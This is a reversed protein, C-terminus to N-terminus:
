EDIEVAIQRETMRKSALIEAVLTTDRLYTVFNLLLNSLNKPAGNLM